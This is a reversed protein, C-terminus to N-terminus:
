GCRTARASDGRFDLAKRRAGRLGAAHARRARRARPPLAGRFRSLRRRLRDLPLRPAFRPGLEHPPPTAAADTSPPDEGRAQAARADLKSALAQGDADGEGEPEQAEEEAAVHTVKLGSLGRDVRRCTLGPRPATRGEGPHAQPDELR